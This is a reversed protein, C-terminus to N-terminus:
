RRIPSDARLFPELAERPIRISVVGFSEPAVDGPNFVLELGDSRYHYCDPSRLLKALEDRSAFKGRLNAGFRHSLGADVKASAAEVWAVGDKFVQEPGVAMGTSLDVLTGVRRADGPPGNRGLQWYSLSIGATRPSPRHLTFSQDYVWEQQELQQGAAVDPITEEIASQAHELFASNIKSFDATRGDFRPWSAEIRYFVNGVNGDRVMAHESVFPYGDEALARLFAIRRGYRDELCLDIDGFRAICARANAQLWRQQDEVLHHRAAGDLKALLTEYSRALERDLAAVAENGCIAKEIAAAARACDFSPQAGATSAAIIAFAALVARMGAAM